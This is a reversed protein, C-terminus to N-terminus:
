RRLGGKATRIPPCGEAIWGEIDARRWRVLTGLKLPRPLRGSDALRYVHRPSCSLFSAVTTVDLMAADREARARGAIREGANTETGTM